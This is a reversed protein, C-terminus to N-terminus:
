RCGFLTRIEREFDRLLSDDSIASSTSKIFRINLDESIVMAIMESLVRGLSVESTVYCRSYGGARVRNSIELVSLITTVIIDSPYGHHNSLGKLAAIEDDIAGARVLICSRM